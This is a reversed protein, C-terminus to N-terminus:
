RAIEPLALFPIVYTVIYSMAEGDRRQVAVAKLPVPSLRSALLLYGVLGVLGVSGLALSGYAFAHSRRLYLFFFIVALPFYSSLFLLIRIWLRGMIVAAGM